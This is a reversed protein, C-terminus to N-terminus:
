VILMARVIDTGLLNVLKTREFGKASEDLVNVRDPFEAVALTMADVVIQM